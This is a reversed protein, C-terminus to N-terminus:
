GRSQRIFETAVISTSFFGIAKAMAAKIAEVQTKFNTTNREYPVEKFTTIGANKLVKRSGELAGKGYSDDQYLFAFDTVRSTNMVYQTLVRAETPYSARWHVITPLDPQRFIPAGTIPFFLFLKGQRILEM